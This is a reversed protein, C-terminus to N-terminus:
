KDMEKKLSSRLKGIGYRYKSKVTNLPLKLSKAIERCRMEGHAHLVIVERQEVPLEKLALALKQLQENLVIGKSPDHLESQNVEAKELGSSQRRKSRIHYRVRNAVCTTLYGKLTGTLSFGDLHEAFYVFTDQVSDEAINIDNSLTIALVLLRDRHKEYIRCFANSDGLRARSVM